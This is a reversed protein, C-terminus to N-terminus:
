HMSSRGQLFDDSSYLRHFIKHTEASMVATIKFSHFPHTNQLASSKQTLLIANQLWLEICVEFFLDSVTICSTRFELCTVQTNFM